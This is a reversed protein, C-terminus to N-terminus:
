GGAAGRGGESVSSDEAECCPTAVDFYSTGTDRCGHLFRSFIEVGDWRSRILKVVSLSSFLRYLLLLILELFQCVERVEDEDEVSLQTTNRRPPETSATASSNPLSMRKAVLSKMATKKTVSQWTSQAATTKRLRPVLETNFKVSFSTALRTCPHLLAM